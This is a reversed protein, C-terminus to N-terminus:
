SKAKAKAAAENAFGDVAQDLLVQQAEVVLDHARVQRADKWAEIEEEIARKKKDLARYTAIEQETLRRYLDSSSGRLQETEKSGAVQYLVNRNGAHIGVLVIHEIEIKDGTRWGESIRTVPIAIRGHTRVQKRLKEALGKLTPATYLDGDIKAYFEGDDDVAPTIQRGDIDLPKM